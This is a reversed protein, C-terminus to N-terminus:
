KVDIRYVQGSRVVLEMNFFSFPSSVFVSVEFMVDLPSDVLGQFFGLM